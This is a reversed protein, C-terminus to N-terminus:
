PYSANYTYLDAMCFWVLVNCVHIVDCTYCQICLKHVTTKKRSDENVDNKAQIVLKIDNYYM